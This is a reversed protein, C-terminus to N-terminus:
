GLLSGLLLVSHMVKILFFNIIPHMLSKQAVQREGDNQKLTSLNINAKTKIQM